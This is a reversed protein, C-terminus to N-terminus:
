LPSSLLTTSISSTKNIHINDSEKM